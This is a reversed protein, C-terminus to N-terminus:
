VNTLSCILEISSKQKKYTLRSAVMQIQLIFHVYAFSWIHADMWETECSIVNTGRVKLQIAEWAQRGPVTSDM